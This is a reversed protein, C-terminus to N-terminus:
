VEEFTLTINYSILQSKVSPRRGIGINDVFLGEYWEGNDMLIGFRDKRLYEILIEKAIQRCNILNINYRIIPPATNMRGVAYGSLSRTVNGVSYQADASSPNLPLDTDDFIYEVSFAQAELLHTNDNVTIRVYRLDEDNAIYVLTSANPRITVSDNEVFTSPVYRDLEIYGTGIDVVTADFFTSGSHDLQVNNGVHFNDTDDVAIIRSAGDCDASLDTTVSGNHQNDIEAWSSGNASTEIKVSTPIKTPDFLLRLYDYIINDDGSDIVINAGTTGRWETQKNGDIANEKPYGATESSASEVRSGTWTSRLKNASTLCWAFSMVWRM